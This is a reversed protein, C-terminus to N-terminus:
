LLQKAPAQRRGNDGTLTRPMSLCECVCMCLFPAPLPPLKVPPPAHLRDRVRVCTGPAWRMEEVFMANAGSARQPQRQSVQLVQGQFHRVATAGGEAVPQPGARGAVMVQQPPQYSGQQDQRPTQQQGPGAPSNPAESDQNNGRNGWGRVYPGRAPRAEYILAPLEQRREM